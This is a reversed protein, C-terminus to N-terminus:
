YLRKTENKQEKLKRLLECHPDILDQYIIADDIDGDKFPCYFINLDDRQLFSCSACCSPVIIDMKVIDCM